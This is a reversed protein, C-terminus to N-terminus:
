KCQMINIDIHVKQRPSTGPLKISPSYFMQQTNDTIEARESKETEGGSASESQVGEKLYYFLRFLWIILQKFSSAM